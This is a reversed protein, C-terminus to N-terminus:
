YNVTGIRSEIKINKCRQMKPKETDDERLAEAAVGKVSEKLNEYSIKDKENLLM